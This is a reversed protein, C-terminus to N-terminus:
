RPSIRALEARLQEAPRTGVVREFFRRSRESAERWRAPDSLTEMCAALAAGDPQCMTEALEPAFTATASRPHVFGIVPLGLAGFDLVRSPVSYASRHNTEPPQTPGLMLAFHCAALAEDRAADTRAPGALTLMDRLAPDLRRVIGRWGIYRWEVAIGRARLAETAAQMAPLGAAYSGIDGILAVRLRQPDVPAAARVASDPRMFFLLEADSRGSAQAMERTLSLVGAAHDILWALDGGPQPPGDLMDWLHVVFPKGLIELLHRMRTADAGGIPAVYVSGTTAALREVVRRGAGSLVDGRWLSLGLARAASAAPGPRRFIALRSLVPRELRVSRAPRQLTLDEWYLHRANGIGNCYHITQVGIATRNTLSFRTILLPQVDGERDNSPM